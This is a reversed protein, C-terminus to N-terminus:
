AGEAERRRLSEWASRQVAIWPEREWASGVASTVSHARGHRWGTDGNKM